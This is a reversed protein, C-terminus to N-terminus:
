AGVVTLNTYTPFKSTMFDYGSQNVIIECTTPVNNFTSSYSTVKDFNMNRIDLQKLSYCNNFMSSINTLVPTYFSSLDLKSLSYCTNFMNSMSTVKETNLSPITKLSYCTTFMSAMSTVKQTNLQPITILSYCNAFMTAMSTVNETNLQPITKLSFCYSFANSMNTINKTNLKSITVLSSCNGFMYSMSTKSLMDLKPIAILSRYGQYNLKTSNKPLFRVSNDDSGLLDNEDLKFIDDYEENWVVGNEQFYDIDEDTWGIAKLGEVDVHGTFSSGGGSVNVTVEGLGTYGEDATYTGNETITKNQNNIETGGGETSQYYITIPNQQLYNQITITGNILEEVDFIFNLTSSTSSVQCYNGYTAQNWINSIYTAKNCYMVTNPKVDRFGNNYYYVLKKGNTSKKWGSESGNLVVKKWNEVLESISPLNQIQISMESVKFKSSFEKYNIVLIPKLDDTFQSINTGGEYTKMKSLNDLQNILTSDTIEIETPTELPVIFVAQKEELLSKVQSTTMGKTKEFYFYIRNNTVNFGEIRNYTTGRKILKTINSIGGNINVDSDTNKLNSGSIFFRSIGAQILSATISSFDTIKIFENHVFWKEELKYYYDNESYLPNPTCNLSFNQEKHPLTTNELKIETMKVLKIESPNEINPEVDQEIEGNLCFSLINTEATNELFGEKGKFEKTKVVGKERIANAINRINEEEYLKNM